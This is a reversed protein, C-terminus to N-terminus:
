PHGTKEDQGRHENWKRLQQPTLVGLIGNKHQERLMARQLKIAAIARMLEDPKSAGKEVRAVYEETERLVIKVTDDELKHSDEKLLAAEDLQADIAWGEESAANSVELIAVHERLKALKPLTRSETASAQPEAEQVMVRVVEDIASRIKKHKAKLELIQAKFNEHLAVIKKCQNEDPNVVEAMECYMPPLRNSNEEPVVSPDPSRGCGLFLLSAGVLALSAKM